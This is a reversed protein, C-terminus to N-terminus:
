RRLVALLHYGQADVPLESIEKLSLQRTIKGGVIVDITRATFPDGGRNIRFKDFLYVKCAARYGPVDLTLRGDVPVRYDRPDRIRLRLMYAQPDIAVVKLHQEFPLTPVPLRYACGSLALNLILAGFCAKGIGPRTMCGIAM